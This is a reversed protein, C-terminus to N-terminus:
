LSRSGKPRYPSGWPTGPLCIRGMQTPSHSAKGLQSSRHPQPTSAKPNCEPRTSGRPSRPGSEKHPQTKSGWWTPAAPTRHGPIGRLSPPSSGRRQQASSGVLITWRSARSRRSRSGKPSLLYTTTDQPSGTSWSRCTSHWLRGQQSSKGQLCRPPLLTDQLCSSGQAIWGGWVKRPPSM